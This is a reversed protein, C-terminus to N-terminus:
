PCAFRSWLTSGCTNRPKRLVPLRILNLLEMLQISLDHV